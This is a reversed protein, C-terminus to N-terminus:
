GRRGSRGGLRRAARRTGEAVAAGKIVPTTIARYTAGTAGEVRQGIGHSLDLLHEVREVEGAARNASAALEAVLPEAADRFAESAAELEEAAAKLRSAAAFFAVCSGAFALAGVVAAVVAVLDMTSM